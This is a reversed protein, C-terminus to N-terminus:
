DSSSLTRLTDFQELLAKRAPTRVLVVCGRRSGTELNSPAAPFFPVLEFRDVAPALYELCLSKGHGYDDYGYGDDGPVRFDDVMVVADPFHEFVFETEELLPLDEAWHADLYFFLNDKKKILDNQLLYALFERSDMNYLNVLPDKRLRTRAYAFFRPNVEGTHIPVGSQRHMFQTTVGRFTGTEVIWSFDIKGVLEQFIKQRYSQGNFPGGQKRKLKPKLYFDFIGLVIEKFSGIPKPQYNM